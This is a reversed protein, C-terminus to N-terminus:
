SFIQQDAFRSYLFTDTLSLLYWIIQDRAALIASKPCKLWNEISAEQIMCWLQFSGYWCEYKQYSLYQKPSSVIIDAFWNIYIDALHATSESPGKKDSLKVREQQNRSRTSTASKKSGTANSESSDTSSPNRKLWCIKKYSYIVIISLVVHMLCWVVSVIIIYIKKEWMWVWKM